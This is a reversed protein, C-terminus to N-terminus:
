NNYLDWSYYLTNTHSCQHVHIKAVDPLEIFVGHRDTTEARQKDTVIRPANDRLTKM